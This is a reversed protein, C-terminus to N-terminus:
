WWYWFKNLSQRTEKLMQEAEHKKLRQAKTKGTEKDTYVYWGGSKREITFDETEFVIM